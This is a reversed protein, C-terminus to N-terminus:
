SEPFAEKILEQREVEKILAQRILSSMNVHNARLYDVAEWSEKNMRFSMHKYTRDRM